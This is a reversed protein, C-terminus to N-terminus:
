GNGFASTILSTNSEALAAPLSQFINTDSAQDVGRASASTIGIGTLTGTAEGDGGKDLVFVPGGSDGSDTVLTAQFANQLVFQSPGSGIPARVNKAALQGCTFNTTRGQKCVITGVPFSGPDAASTISLLRGSANNIAPSLRRSVSEDSVPIVAWDSSDRRFQAARGIIGEEHRWEKDENGFVCHGATLISNVSPTSTKVWYGISCRGAASSIEDGSNIEVPINESSAFKVTVSQPFIKVIELADERLSKSAEVEVVVKNQQPAIYTSVTKINKEVVFGEVALRLAELDRGSNKVIRPKVNLGRMQNARQKNTVAVTLEGTEKDLWTGASWSNDLAPEIRKNAEIMAAQQRLRSDAEEADVGLSRSVADIIQKEYNETRNASNDKEGPTRNPLSCGAASAFGLGALMIVILSTKASRAKNFSMIGETTDELIQIDQKQRNKQQKTKRLADGCTLQM